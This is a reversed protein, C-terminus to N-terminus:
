GRQTASKYVKNLLSSVSGTLSKRFTPVPWRLHTFFLLRRIFIINMM